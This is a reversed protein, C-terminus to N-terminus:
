EIVEDARELLTRPVELGIDRAARLNVVLEFATPQEVPLDAPSAGRLIKDVFDGVRGAHSKFNAAYAMLGGDRAMGALGYLAPLRARAAFGIIEERRAVVVPDGVVLLVEPGAAAVRALAPAVEAATTFEFATLALAISRGAAQAAVMNARAGANTPNALLAGRRAAPALQRLLEVQKGALDPTMSVTGTVNGGPRALSRVLGVAIPDGVNVMVIPVTATAGRAAEAAPQATAIMVEVGLGVLERALAPLREVHGDAAREEFAITRREIWGLERLRERFSQAVSDLPPRDTAWLVGIRRPGARTQGAAPRSACAAAALALVFRRRSM